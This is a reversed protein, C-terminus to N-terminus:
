DFSFRRSSFLAICAQAMEPDYLQGKNKDIEELAVDVGLGPRYPRHSAMAEVVDAVTLVRSEPLIDNGSVGLPYGSGNLKEHHQHIMTSVDWPFEIDKVIDYGVQPHEKILNFENATLRSPKSLIEAPVSIKGLDHIIAAVRVAEIQDHTFGVEQAIAAALDAVRRQHGATYPDRTEVTHAIARVIGNMANELKSMSHRLSETREDVMHELNRRYSRNAIELERRRFANAVSILIGNRDMPKIIYDYVGLELMSDALHPDGIASVMIAATDPYTKLVFRIFDLGSEGPMNIDCLVLDCSQAAMMDRAQGANEATHCTYGNSELIKQLLMRIPQEDDVVLIQKDREPGAEIGGAVTQEAADRAGPDVGIDVNKEIVQAEQDM